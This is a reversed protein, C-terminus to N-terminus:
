ARCARRWWISAARRRTPGPRGTARSRRTFSGPIAASLREYDLGFGRMVGPRYNEILIDSQLALRRCAEQAAPNKLDLVIGRKGRNVANYSPSETGAAGAMRRTSDGQPPEVKIVDAGMDCLQMACFPGAMVQTVDLVRIGDLARRREGGQPAMVHGGRADQKVDVTGFGAEREQRDITGLRPVGHSRVHVLREDVGAIADVVIRADAHEHEAAGATLGEHGPGVDRLKRPEARALVRQGVFALEVGHDVPEFPHGLRRDRLHLAHGGAAAAGDCEGAVQPDARRVGPEAHRHGPREAVAQRRGVVRPQEIKQAGGAGPLEHEGAPQDLRLSARASPSTFRTTSALAM